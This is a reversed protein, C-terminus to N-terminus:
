VKQQPSHRLGNMYQTTSLRSLGNRIMSIIESNCDANKQIISRIDWQGRFYAFLMEADADPEDIQNFALDREATLKQYRSRLIPSLFPCKRDMESIAGAVNLIRIHQKEGIEDYIRDVRGEAYIHIRHIMIKETGEDAWTATSIVLQASITTGLLLISFLWNKM